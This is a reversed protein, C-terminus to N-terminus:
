ISMVIAVLFSWFCLFGIAKPLPLSSGSKPSAAGPAAVPRPVEHTAPSPASPPPPASTPPSSNTANRPVRVDVRQGAECHGPVSCIFYYHGGRRITFSDNGSSWKMYPATANCANFNMHTVRVVNHFDKNYEFVITDGVHFTKAASWAKYDFNATSTWGVSDGVKYLAATSPRCVAIVTFVFLLAKKGSGM